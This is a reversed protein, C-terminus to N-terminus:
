VPINNTRRIFNYFKAAVSLFTGEQAVEPLPGFGGFSKLNPFGNLAGDMFGESKEDPEQNRSWFVGTISM